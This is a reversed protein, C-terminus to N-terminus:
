RREKKQEKWRSWSARFSNIEIPNESFSEVAAKYTDLLSTKSAKSTIFLVSFSFAACM